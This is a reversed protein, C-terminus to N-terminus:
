GHQASPDPCHPSLHFLWQNEAPAICRLHITGRLRTGEVAVQLSQPQDTPQWEFQGWDWRSVQGRDGSIPGEYELYILRHRPLEKAPIEKGAEPPSPLSWTRLGEAEELMFDWHTGEKTTHQLIVFRPM